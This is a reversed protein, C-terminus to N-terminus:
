CPRPPPRRRSSPSSSGCRAGVGAAPKAGAGSGLVLIQFLRVETKFHEANDDFHKRAAAEDVKAKAGVEQRYLLDRLESRKFDNVPAEMFRLKRLYEPDRHLGRLEAQQRALEQEVLRDLVEKAKAKSVGGGPGRGERALVYHLDAIRIPVGNVTVLVDSGHAAASASASPSASPTAGPAADGSPGDCGAAAGLLLAVGVHGYNFARAM